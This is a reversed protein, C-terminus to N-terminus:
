RLKKQRSLKAPKFTEEDRWWKAPVNFKYTYLIRSLKKRSKEIRTPTFNSPFNTGLTLPPERTIRHLVPFNTSKVCRYFRLSLCHSHDHINAYSFHSQLRQMEPFVSKSIDPCTLINVGKKRSKERKKKKYNGCIIILKKIIIM